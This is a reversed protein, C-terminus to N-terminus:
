KLSKFMKKLKALSYKTAKIPGASVLGKVAQPTSSRQVIQSVCANISQDIEGKSKKSSLEKSLLTKLNVPLNDMHKCIAKLDKNQVIKDSSIQVSDAMNELRDMYLGKFLEMQASVINEVKNKDEGVLMRLDGSYSLGTLVLYLEKETFSEPLCLLATHLASDLNKILATKLEPLDRDRELINVPKHLRGSM